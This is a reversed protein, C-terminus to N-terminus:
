GGRRNQGASVVHVHTTDWHTEPFAILGRASERGCPTLKRSRRSMRWKPDVPWALNVLLIRAIEYTLPPPWRVRRIEIRAGLRSDLCDSFGCRGRVNFLYAVLEILADLLCPYTSLTLLPRLDVNLVPWKKRRTVWFIFLPRKHRVTYFYRRIITPTTM